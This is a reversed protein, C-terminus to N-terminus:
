RLFDLTVDFALSDRGTRGSEDLLRLFNESSGRTPVSPDRTFRTARTRVAEVPVQSTINPLSPYTCKTQPALLHRRLRIEGDPSFKLGSCIQALRAHFWRCPSHGLVPAQPHLFSFAFSPHLIKTTGGQDQDFFVWLVSCPSPDCASTSIFGQAQTAPFQGNFTSLCGMLGEAGISDL